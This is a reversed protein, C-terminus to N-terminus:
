KPVRVEANGEILAEAAAVLAKADADDAWPSPTGDAAPQMLAKARALAERARVRHDDATLPATLTLDAKM